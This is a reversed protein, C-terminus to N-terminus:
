VPFASSMSLKVQRGLELLALIVISKKLSWFLPNWLEACTLLVLYVSRGLTMAGVM